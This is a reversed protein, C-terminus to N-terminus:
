VTNCIYIFFFDEIWSSNDGELINLTGMGM